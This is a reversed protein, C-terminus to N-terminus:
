NPWVVKKEKWGYKDNIWRDAYTYSASMTYMRLCHTHKYVYRFPQNRCAFQQNGCLNVMDMRRRKILASIWTWILLLLTIADWKRKVNPTARTSKGNATLGIPLRFLYLSCPWPDVSLYVKLPTNKEENPMLLLVRELWTQYAEDKKEEEHFQRLSENMNWATRFNKLVVNWISVCVCIWKSMNVINNAMCKNTYQTDWVWFDTQKCDVSFPKTAQKVVDKLCKNHTGHQYWIRDHFYNDM